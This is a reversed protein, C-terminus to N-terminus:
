NDISKYLIWSTNRIDMNCFPSIFFIFFYRIITAFILLFGFNQPCFKKFSPLIHFESFKYNLYASTYVRIYFYSQFHYSRLSHHSDLYSIISLYHYIISPIVEMFHIKTLFEYPYLFQYHTKLSLIILFIVFHKYSILSIIFFVNYYIITCHFHYSQLHL